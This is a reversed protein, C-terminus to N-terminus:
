PVYPDDTHQVTVSRRSATAMLFMTIALGVIGIAMLIDGILNWNVTSARWSIDVAFRIVAGVAILVISTGVGM